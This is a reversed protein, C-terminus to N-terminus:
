YVESLLQSISNIQNWPRAKRGSMGSNLTILAVGCDMLGLGYEETKCLARRFIPPLDVSLIAMTVSLM